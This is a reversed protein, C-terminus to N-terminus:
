WPGILKDLIALFLVGAFATLAGFALALRNVRKRDPQAVRYAAYGGLAGVAVLLPFGGLIGYFFVAIIVGKIASPGSMYGAFPVPFRFILACLVAIPLAFVVAWCAGRLASSSASIKEGVRDLEPPSEV